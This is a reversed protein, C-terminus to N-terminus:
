IFICYFICIDKNMHSLIVNVLKVPDPYELLLWIQVSFVISRVDPLHIDWCRWAPSRSMGKLVVPLSDESFLELLWLRIGISSPQLWLWALEYLSLFKSVYM